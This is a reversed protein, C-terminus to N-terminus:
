KKTAKMRERCAKLASALLKRIASSNIQADSHIVVYRSIKGEGELLGDPDPLEPGKYFGLKLGKKSPIITCIMEAYKQGYSYAVMKASIDVQEIIDPLNALLVERLKLANSFVQEDYSYLFAEVNKNKAMCTEVREGISIGSTLM